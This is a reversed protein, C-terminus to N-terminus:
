LRDRRSIKFAWNEKFKKKSATLKRRGKCSMQGPSLILGKCKCEMIEEVYGNCIVNRGISQVGKGQDHKGLVRVVN